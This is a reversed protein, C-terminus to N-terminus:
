SGDGAGTSDGTELEGTRTGAKAGTRLWPKGAGVLGAFGLVEGRYLDFNMDAFVNEKSLGRVSMLLDGRPHTDRVFFAELKRGVM